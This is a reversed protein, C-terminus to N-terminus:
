CIGLRFLSQSLSTGHRGPIPVTSVQRFTMTIAGSDSCTPLGEESGLGATAAVSSEAAANNKNGQGGGGFLGSLSFQRKAKAQGKINDEVGVSSAAGNNVPAAAGTGMFNAIM